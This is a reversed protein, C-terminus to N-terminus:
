EKEPVLEWTGRKVNRIIGKSKLNTRCWRLRYELKTSMDNEDEMLVIEEPLQLLEIIRENITPVTATGGLENLADVIAKELVSNSPFYNNKMEEERNNQVKGVRLGNM